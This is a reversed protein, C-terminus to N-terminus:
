GPMTALSGVVRDLVEGQRPVLFFHNGPFVHLEFAGRTYHIWDAVDPVQAEPDADGALATVPVRLPLGTTPRYTEILRYDARLVPMLTARLEPHALVADTTGGLRGLERWLVEDPGLHKDGTRHHRPAPRGSLFLRVPPRGYRHELRYAVEYAVAAGMSHGFLAYPQDLLPELAPLIQEVMADMDPVCPEGIRDLRGPYQVAVVEVHLPARVAWGRYFTANGSAYPFCVLRYRARPRPRYYRLWDAGGGGPRALAPGSLGRAGATGSM